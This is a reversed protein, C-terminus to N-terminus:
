NGLRAAYLNKATEMYDDVALEAGDAASKRSVGNRLDFAIMADMLAQQQAACHRKAFDAFTEAKVESPNAAGAAQKLCAVFVSRSRDIAATGPAPAPAAALLLVFSLM